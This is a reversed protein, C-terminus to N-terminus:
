WTAMIENPLLAPCQVFLFEYINKGIIMLSWFSKWLVGMPGFPPDSDGDTNFIYFFDVRHSFVSKNHLDSVLM